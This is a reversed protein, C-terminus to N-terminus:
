WYCVKCWKFKFLFIFWNWRLDMTIMCYWHKKHFRLFENQILILDNRERQEKTNNSIILNKHKYYWSISVWSLHCLIKISFQSSLKYIKEFIEKPIFWKEKLKLAKTKAELTFIISKSTVNKTYKKKNIRNSTKRHIEYNIQKIKITINM